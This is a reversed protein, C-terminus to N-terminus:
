TTIPLVPAIPTRIRKMPGSVIAGVTAKTPNAKNPAVPDKAPLHINRFNSQAKSVNSM